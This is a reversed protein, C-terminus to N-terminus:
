LTTTQVEYLVPDAPLEVQQAEERKARAPFKLEEFTEKWEPKLETPDFQSTCQWAYIPM